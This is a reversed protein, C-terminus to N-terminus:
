RFFAKVGGWTKRENAQPSCDDCGAGLAGVLEHLPDDLHGPLCWSDSCLHFDYVGTDCFGPDAGFNGNVGFQDSLGDWDGGTNEWIDVYSLSISAGEFM